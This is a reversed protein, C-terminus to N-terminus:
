NGETICYEKIKREIEANAVISWKAVANEASSEKNVVSWFIQDVSRTLYYSGPIEPVEKVNQWQKKLVALDKSNWTLSTFAEINSTATRSVMGLVSEVNRIYRKQTDASTWWKLFQWAADKKSSKNIIGCGTGSGAVSRNVSGDDCLTGPVLDVAWRGKIEPAAASLNMYTAFPAIGLPMSGMRFRNYFDAEKMFDYNIYFSTWKNIVKIVEENDLDARDNKENFLSLGSQSLMTPLLNLNGIGVDVTGAAAVQTYPVYVNMSNRQIVTAAYIFDDWTKPVSLELEEFVDTRYFMLFYSQTDPLAYLAGNYSYPIEAGPQFRTLVERYDEFQKLDALAGRIGLNVPSTRSMHLSVDPYNDALIGNILSANVIELKVNIGTQETFSDKILSDLAAAQDQGWNVWLRITTGDGNQSYDSEQYDDSFSVLFKKTGFILKQLFGANKNEGENGAPVLQIEDIALPMNTMDNLWSCLSTYNSYYNSVYQQAIYPSRLMNNLVRAMNEMAAISQTTGKGSKRRMDEALQKLGDRYLTLRENFDPIKNFLEYDMNLDPTESTIMVIKIYEDGLAEVIESLRSVFRAQEGVTVELSLTHNGKELYIYYSEKGDGLKLYDWDTGYPFTISKAEKFPVKGDIKLKRLSDGNILYSQKYRINISYYGAKEAEFKWILTDGPSQWSTGGIYNIKQNYADSPTMGADRNDSRPIISNGTKLNAAEGQLTIIDADSSEIKKNNMVSYSEPNEPATLIISKIEIGQCPEVLTLKHEGENLALIYPEACVGTTDQLLSTIFVDAEVQEPSYQNGKADVVPQDSINKWLRSMTIKKLAEYPYEGDSLVGMEINLGNELPKWVIQINYQAKSPVHFNFSVSGNGNNWVIGGDKLEISANNSSANELPVSIQSKAYPIDAAKKLYNEYDSYIEGVGSGEAIAPTQTLFSLIFAAILVAVTLVFGTRKALNQLYRM